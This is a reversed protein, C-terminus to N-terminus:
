FGAPAKGGTDTNPRHCFAATGLFAFLANESGLSQEQKKGFISDYGSTTLRFYLSAVFIM